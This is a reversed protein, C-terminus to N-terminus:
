KSSRFNLENIYMNAAKVQATQIFPYKGGYLSPHNRPRHKSKGRAVSGLEDLRKTEWIM